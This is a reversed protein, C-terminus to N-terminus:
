GGERLIASSGVRKEYSQRRPAMDSALWWAALLAREQSLPLTTLPGGGGGSAGATGGGPCDGKIGSPRAAPRLQPLLPAAQPDASSAGNICM